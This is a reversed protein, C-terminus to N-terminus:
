GKALRRFRTVPTSFGLRFTDVEFTSAYRIRFWQQWASDDDVLFFEDTSTVGRVAYAMYDDFEASPELPLAVIAGPVPYMRFPALVFGLRAPDKLWEASKAEVFGSRVFVPTNPAPSQQRLIGATVRWDPVLPWPTTGWTSAVMALSAVSVLIMRQKNHKVCSIFMAWVLAFAPLTYAYYRPVFLKIPTLRALLFLMAPPLTLWTTVMLGSRWAVPPAWWEVSPFLLYLLAAGLVLAGGAISTFFEFFSNWAPTGAWNHVPARGAAAGYYPLIPLCLFVLLAAGTVAPKWDFSGKRAAERAFVLAYVFAMLGCSPHTYYGTALFVICLAGDSSRRHELWRLFYLASAIVVAIAFAYPRAVFAYYATGPLATFILAAALGAAPHILRAALRYLLFAALAMALVSPMRLVWESSGVGHYVLWLVGCYLPSQICVAMRDLFQHWNGSVIYYTGTEDLGFGSKLPMLWGRILAAAFLFTWITGEIRPAVAPSSASWEEAPLKIKSLTELKVEM